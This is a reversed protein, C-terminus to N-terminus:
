LLVLIRPACFDLLHIQQRLRHSHICLLFLMINEKEKFDRVEKKESLTRAPIVSEKDKGGKPIGKKIMGANM